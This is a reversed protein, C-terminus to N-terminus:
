VAKQAIDQVNIERHYYPKTTRTKFTRLIPRKKWASFITYSVRDSLTKEVSSHEIKVGMEM